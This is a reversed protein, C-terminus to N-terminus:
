VQIFQMRVSNQLTLETGEITIMFSRCPIVDAVPLLYQDNSVNNAKVLFLRDATGIIIDEFSIGNMGINDLTNVMATPITDTTLKYISLSYNIVARELNINILPFYGSHGTGIRIDNVARDVYISTITDFIKDMFITGNDPGAIDSVVITAGNQLGTITFRAASLDIDSSFSLSRSYGHSLFNVESCTGNTLNGNLILNGAAAINQQKCM